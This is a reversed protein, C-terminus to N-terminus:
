EGTIGAREIGEVFRRQLITYVILLPIITILTAAMRIGENIRNEVSADRTPFMATYRNVFNRLMIPLTKINDGNFVAAMYTENWYWVFSFLFTVVIMPISMPLIVRYFIEFRNAGDIEAAEEFAVPIMSFFRYYLLIFISSKVGQGLIAPLFTSWPTGVLKLRAFLIYKPVYTVQVPIIFAAIVFFFILRKLPFEFRALGYAVLATVITQFIAPIISMEISDWISHPVDLVKWATKFNDLYLDTPIWSVIPNALDRMSMFSISVMYILPHLYAYAIGLLIVFIVIRTILGKTKKSVLEGGL